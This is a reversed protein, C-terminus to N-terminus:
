GAPQAQQLLKIARARVRELVESDSAISKLTPAITALEVARGAAVDDVLAATDADLGLRDFRHDFELKRGVDLTHAIGLFLDTLMAVRKEQSFNYTCTGSSGDGTYRLTKKGTDAINKAKSACATNFYNLERAAAFIQTTTSRSIMAQRDIRQPASPGYDASRRQTLIEDAVYHASGDEGVQLSFKPVPLGPREFEFSVEAGTTRSSEPASAVTQQAQAARIALIVFLSTAIRLAPM